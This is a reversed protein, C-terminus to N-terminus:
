SGKPNKKSSLYNDRCKTSCFYLDKGDERLHVGTRKPFYIKCFPDYLMIDDIETPPKNLFTKDPSINKSIYMSKLLFKLSKFGFYVLIFFILLRM